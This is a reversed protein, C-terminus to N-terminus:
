CIFYEGMIFFCEKYGRMSKTGWEAGLHGYDWIQNQSWDQEEAKELHTQNQKKVM